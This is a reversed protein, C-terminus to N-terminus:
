LMSQGTSQTRSAGAGKPPPRAPSPPPPPGTAASPAGAGRLPRGAAASSRVDAPQAAPTVRRGRLFGVAPITPSDFCSCLTWKQRRTQSRPCPEVTSESGKYLPGRHTKYHPLACLTDHVPKHIIAM